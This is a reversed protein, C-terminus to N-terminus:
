KDDLAELMKVGGAIVIPNYGKRKLYSYGITAREGSNCLVFIPLDYSLHALCKYINQLPVNVRNEHPDSDEIEDSKRIDLLMFEGERSTERYKKASITAVKELEEGNNEWQNSVNPFYGLINDFGTRRCYWYIEELDELNGDTIFVLKEETKFIAGLFTSLSKKSM